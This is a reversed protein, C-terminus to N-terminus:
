RPKKVVAISDRGVVFEWALLSRNIKVIDKQAKVPDALLATKAAEPDTSFLLLVPGAIFERDFLNAKLPWNGLNV